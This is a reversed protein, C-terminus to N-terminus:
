FAFLRPEINCKNIVCIAIYHDFSTIDELCLITTKFIKSLKIYMTTLLDLFIYIPLRISKDAINISKAIYVDREVTNM